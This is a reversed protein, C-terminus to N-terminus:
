QTGVTGLGGSERLDASAINAGQSTCISAAAFRIGSVAGTM